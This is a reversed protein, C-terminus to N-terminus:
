QFWGVIIDRFFVVGGWLIAGIVGLVSVAGIAKAWLSTVLDTVPEIKGLRRLIDAQNSQMKHIDESFQERALQVKDQEAQREQRDQKMQQEMREM